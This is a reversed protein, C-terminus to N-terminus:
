CRGDLSLQPDRVLTETRGFLPAGRYVRASITTPTTLEATVDYTVGDKPDYLWGGTWYDAAGPQLGWIHGGPLRVVRLGSGENRCRCRQPRVIEHPKEPRASAALEAAPDALGVEVGWTGEPV